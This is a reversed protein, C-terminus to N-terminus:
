SVSALESSQVSPVYGARLLDSEEEWGWERGSLSVLQYEWGTAYTVTRIYQDKEDSWEESVNAILRM